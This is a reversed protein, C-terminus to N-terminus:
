NYYNKQFFLFSLYTTELVVFAPQWAKDPIGNASTTTALMKISYLVSRQTIILTGVIHNNISQKADTMSWNLEIENSM